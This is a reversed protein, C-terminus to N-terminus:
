QLDGSLDELNAVLDSSYKNYSLVARMGVIPDALSMALGDISNAIKECNNLLNLHSVYLSIPVKISSLERAFDRYATAVTKASYMAQVDNSGIGQSILTLEAGLDKEKYKEYILVFNEYYSENAEKADSVMTLDEKKYTDPYKEITIKQGIAESISGLTEENLNGSSQLSIISAFLERSLMENDSIVRSDDQQSIEGEQELIKKKSLIFAKNDEGNKTPDLGWLYEEWDPIGNKNSDEQIIEGFTVSVPTNERIEKGKKIFSVLSKIALFFSILIIVFLITAIFKKSPLYKEINRM